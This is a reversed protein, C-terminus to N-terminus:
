KRRDNPRSHPESRRFTLPLASSGSSSKSHAASFYTLIGSSSVFASIRNVSSIIRVSCIKRIREPTRPRSSCTPSTRTRRSPSHALRDPYRHELKSYQQLILANNVNDNEHRVDPAPAFCECANIFTFYGTFLDAATANKSTFFSLAVARYLSIRRRPLNPGCYRGGFPSNILDAPDSSQVESYIDM